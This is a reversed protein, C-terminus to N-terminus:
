WNQNNETMVIEMLVIEEAHVSKNACYQYRTSKRTFERTFQINHYRYKYVVICYTVCGESDFGPRGQVYFFKGFNNYLAM